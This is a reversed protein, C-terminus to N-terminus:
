GPACGGGGAIAGGAVESSGQGAIRRRQVRSKRLLRRMTARIANAKGLRGPLRGAVHGGAGIGFWAPARMLEQRFMDSQRRLPLVPGFGFRNQGEEGRCNYANEMFERL